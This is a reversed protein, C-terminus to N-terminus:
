STAQWPIVSEFQGGEPLLPQVDIAVISESPTRIFNRDHCDSFILNSPRLRRLYVAPTFYGSPEFGALNPFTTKWFRGQEINHYIFHETGGKSFNIKPLQSPKLLCHNEASLEKLAQFQCRVVREWREASNRPEEVNALAMSAQASRQEGEIAAHEARALEM